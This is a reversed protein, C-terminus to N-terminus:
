LPWLTALTDRLSVVALYARADSAGFGLVL